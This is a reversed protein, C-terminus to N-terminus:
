TIKGFSMCSWKERLELISSGLYVPKNMPIQKKRMKTALLNQSFFNRTYYNPESEIYLRRKETIVHKIDRHRRQNEMAEGFVENNM